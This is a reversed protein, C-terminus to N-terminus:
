REKRRRPGQLPRSTAAPGGQCRSRLCCSGGTGSPAEGTTPSAGGSCAQLVLSATILIVLVVLWHRNTKSQAKM